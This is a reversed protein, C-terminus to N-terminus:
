EPSLFIAGGIRHRKRVEELAVALFEIELEIEIAQQAIKAHLSSVDPVAAAEKREALRIVGPVPLVNLSQSREQIRL